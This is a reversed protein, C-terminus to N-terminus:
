RMTSRYHTFCTASPATTRKSLRGTTALSCLDRCPFSAAFCDMDEAALYVHATGYQAGVAFQPTKVVPRADALGPHFTVATALSAAIGVMRMNRM